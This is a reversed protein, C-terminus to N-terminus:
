MAAPTRRAHATTLNEFGITNFAKVVRAGPLLEALDETTSRLPDPGIRNMADIVVWGGLPPLQSVTAPVAGWRLAFVVIDARAVADRPSAAQSGPAASIAARSKDSDPDRVGFVVEHGAKTLAAGLAGGVNGAGIIAIRM